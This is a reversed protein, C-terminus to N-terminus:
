SLPTKQGTVATNRSPASEVVAAAAAPVCFGAAEGLTTWRWWRAWLHRVRAPPREAANDGCEAQGGSLRGSALTIVVMPDDASIHAHPHGGSYIREAASRGPHGMPVLRGLGEHPVGEALVGVQRPETFNRWWQKTAARGVLVVAQDGDRAYQVPLTVPRGTRRGLFTLVCLGPLAARWRSRLVALVIRNVARPRRVATVAKTTPTSGTDM